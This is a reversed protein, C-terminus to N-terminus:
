KYFNLKHISSAKSGWIVFTQMPDWEKICITNVYGGFDSKDLGGLSGKVWVLNLQKLAM